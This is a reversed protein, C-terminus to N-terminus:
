KPVIRRVMPGYPANRKNPTLKRESNPFSHFSTSANPVTRLKNPLGRPRNPLGPLRNLVVRLMNRRPQHEPRRLHANYRTTSSFGELSASVRTLTVRLSTKPGRM